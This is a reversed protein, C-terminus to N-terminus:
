VAGRTSSGAGAGVPPAPRARRSRAVEDHAIAVIRCTRDECALTYLAVFEYLANGSRSFLVWDVRAQVLRDSVTAVALARVDARGVDLAQYEAVLQEVVSRWEARAVCQVHVSTGTDSAVHVADGFLAAVAAVDRREFASRYSALFAGVTPLLEDSAM